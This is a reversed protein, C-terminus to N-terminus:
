NLSDTEMLSNALTMPSIDFVDLKIQIKCFCVNMFNSYFHLLKMKLHTLAIMPIFKHHREDM